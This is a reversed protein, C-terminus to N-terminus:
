SILGKYPVFIYFNVALHLRWRRSEKVYGIFIWLTIFIPIFVWFCIQWLTKDDLVLPEPCNSEYGAEGLDQWLEGGYEVQDDKLLICHFRTVIVWLPQGPFSIQRPSDSLSWKWWSTNSTSIRFTPLFVSFVWLRAMEVVSRFHSGVLCLTM